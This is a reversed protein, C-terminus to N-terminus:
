QQLSPGPNKEKIPQQFSYIVDADPTNDSNHLYPPEFCSYLTRFIVAIIDCSCLARNTYKFKQCLFITPKETCFVHREDFITKKFANRQRFLASISFQCSSSFILGISYYVQACAQLLEPDCGCLLM